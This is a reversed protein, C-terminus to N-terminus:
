EETLNWDDTIEHDDWIMYTAVNAFLHRIAASITDSANKKERM